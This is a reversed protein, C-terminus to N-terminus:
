ALAMMGAAGGKWVGCEVMSGAISNRDIYRVQTWLSKLREPPILTHAMVVASAQEIADTEGDCAGVPSQEEPNLGFRAMWTKLMRRSRRGIRTEAAQIAKPMSEITRMPQAQFSGSRERRVQGDRILGRTSCRSPRGRCVAGGRTGDRSGFRARSKGTM